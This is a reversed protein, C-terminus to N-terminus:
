KIFTAVSFWFCIANPRATTPAATTSSSRLTIPADRAAGDTIDGGCSLKGGDGRRESRSQGQVGSVATIGNGSPVEFNNINPQEHGLASYAAAWAALRRMGV